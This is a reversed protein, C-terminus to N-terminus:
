FSMIIPKVYEVQYESIAKDEEDETESPSLEGPDQPTAHSQSLWEKVRAQRNVTFAIQIFNLVNVTYPFLYTTFFHSIIYLRLNLSNSM